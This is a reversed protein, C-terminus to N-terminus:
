IFSTFFDFVSNVNKIERFPNFKELDDYNCLFGVINQYAADNCFFKTPSLCSINESPAFSFLFQHFIHQILSLETFDKYFFGIM